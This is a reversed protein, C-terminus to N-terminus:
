SPTCQAFSHTPILLVSSLVPAAKLWSHPENVSSCTIPMFQILLILWLDESICMHDDATWVLWHLWNGKWSCQLEAFIALGKLSPQNPPSILFLSLPNLPPPSTFPVSSFLKVRVLMFSFTSSCKQDSSLSCNVSAPDTDDCTLGPGLVGCAATCFMRPNANQSHRSTQWIVPWM